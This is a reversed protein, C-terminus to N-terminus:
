EGTSATLDNPKDSRHIRLFRVKKSRSLHVAIGRMTSLSM